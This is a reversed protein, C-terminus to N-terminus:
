LRHPYFLYCFVHKKTFSVLVNNKNRLLDKLIPFIVFYMNKRLYVFINNKNRLLDKLIPRLVNLMTVEKKLGFSEGVIGPDVGAITNSTLSILVDAWNDNTGVDLYAYGEGGPIIGLEGTDRLFLM